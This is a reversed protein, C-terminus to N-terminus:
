DGRHLTVTFTGTGTGKNKIRTYRLITGTPQSVTGSRSVTGATFLGFDVVDAFNASTTDASHQLVPNITGSIVSSVHLFSTGGVVSSGANDITGSDVTATFSAFEGFSVSRQMKGDPKFEAEQRILDAVELPQSVALWNITGSIAPAALGTGLLVSFVNNTGGASGSPILATSAGLGLTTDSDFLGAWEISDRRLGALVREGEDGFVTPDLADVAQTVSVSTTVTGFNYGSHYVRIVNSFIFGM